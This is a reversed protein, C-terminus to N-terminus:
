EREGRHAARQLVRVVDRCTVIDDVELQTLREEVENLRWRFRELTLLNQNAAELLATPSRLEQKGARTYVTVLSRGQSVVVAPRGTQAGEGQLTYFIEKVAYGMGTHNGCM